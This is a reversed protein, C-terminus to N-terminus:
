KWWKTNLIKCCSRGMFGETLLVKRAFSKTPLIPRNDELVCRVVTWSRVSCRQNTPSRTEHDWGFGATLNHTYNSTWFKIQVRTETKCTQHSLCWQKFFLECVFYIQCLPNFIYLSINGALQMPKLTQKKDTHVVNPYSTRQKNQQVPNWLLNKHARVHTSVNVAIWLIAEPPRLAM